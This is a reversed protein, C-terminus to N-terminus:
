EMCPSRRCGRAGGSVAAAVIRELVAEYDVVDILVGLLNRKGIDLM